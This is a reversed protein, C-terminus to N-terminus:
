DAVEDKLLYAIAAAPACDSVMLDESLETSVCLESFDCYEAKLSLALPKLLFRGVGAGVLVGDQEVGAKVLVQESASLIMRVQAAKLQEALQRWRQLESESFDCGIMRSLRRASAVITKEGGDATEYQDHAEILEGTIRYVDAMTAFHEAMLGVSHGQDIVSHAIAMVPTRVVGTYILEKSILREYDTYGQVIPLGDRFALIDTTTSGIDVLLGHRCHKAVFQVSALWNASAISPYHEQKVHEVALFGLQGAYIFLSESALLERMADIIGQVGHQRDLFCDALEGTMTVGHCYSYQPLKAQISGVVASLAAIGKWLPCAQQIVQEVGADTLVVAKVHAGGIDWGLYAKDM